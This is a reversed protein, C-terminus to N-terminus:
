KMSLLSKSSMCISVSLIYRPNEHLISSFGTWGSSRSSNLTVFINRECPIFSATACRGKELHLELSGTLDDEATISFPSFLLALSDDFHTDLRYSLSVHSRYSAANFPTSSLAVFRPEPHHFARHLCM